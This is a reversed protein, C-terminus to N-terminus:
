FDYKARDAMHGVIQYTRAWDAATANVYAHHEQTFDALSTPLSVGDTAVRGATFM